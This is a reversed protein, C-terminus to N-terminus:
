KLNEVKACKYKCMNVFYGFNIWLMFYIQKYMHFFFFCVFKIVDDLVNMYLKTFNIEIKGCKYKLMNVFNSFNIWLM